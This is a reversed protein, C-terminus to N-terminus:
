PKAYSSIEKFREGVIEGMDREKEWFIAVGSPHNAYAAWFTDIDVSYAPFKKRFDAYRTLVVDELKKRELQEEPSMKFRIFTNKMKEKTEESLGREWEEVEKAWWLKYAEVFAPTIEDPTIEKRSV